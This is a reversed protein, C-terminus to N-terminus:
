MFPLWDGFAHHESSSDIFSSDKRHQKGTPRLGFAVELPDSNAEPFCGMGVHEFLSQVHHVGDSNNKSRASSSSTKPHRGRASKTQEVHTSVQERQSPYKKHPKPNISSKQEIAHHNEDKSTSNDNSNTTM